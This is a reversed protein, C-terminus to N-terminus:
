RRGQVGTAGGYEESAAAYGALDVDSIPHRNQETVLLGTKEFAYVLAPDCGAARLAQAIQHEVPEVPPADFFIRDDPGAGARIARRVPGEARRLHRRGLQEHPGVEQTATRARSGTSGRRSAADSSRGRLRGWPGALPSRGRRSTGERAVDDPV